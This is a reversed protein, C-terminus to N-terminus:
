MTNTPDTSEEGKFSPHTLYRCFVGMTAIYTLQHSLRRAACSVELYGKMTDDMLIDHRKQM